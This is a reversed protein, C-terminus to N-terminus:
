LHVSRKVGVEYGGEIISDEKDAIDEDKNLWVPADLERAVGDRVMEDYVSQYVKALSHSHNWKTTLSTKKGIEKEHRKCFGKWYGPGLQHGVVADDIGCNRKVFDLVKQEIPTGKILSNVFLLAQQCDILANMRNLRKLLEVIIPEVEKM